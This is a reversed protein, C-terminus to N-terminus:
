PHVGVVDRRTLAHLHDVPQRMADPLRKRAPNPRACRPCADLAERHVLDCGLCCCVTGASLEAAVLEAFVTPRMASVTKRCPPCDEHPISHSVCFM